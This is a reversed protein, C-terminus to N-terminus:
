LIVPSPTVGWATFLANIATDASFSGDDTASEWMYNSADWLYNTTAGAGEKIYIEITMEHTDKHSAGHIAATQVQTKITIKNYKEGAQPTTIPILNLNAGLDHQNLFTNFVDKWTLKPWQGAGSYQYTVTTGTTGLSKVSLEYVGSYVYIPVLGASKTASAFVLASISSSQISAAQTASTTTSQTINGSATGNVALVLNGASTGSNQLVLVNFRSLTMFGYDYEVDFQNEVDKSYVWIFREPVITSAGGGDAVTFSLGYNAETSTIAIHTADLKFAVLGAAIFGADVNLLNVGLLANTSLTIPTGAVGNVTYAVTDTAANTITIKYLRRAKCVSPERTDKWTDQDNKIQLLIDDEILIKDADALQGGSPTQISPLVGGYFRGKQYYDDNAVGPKQKRKKINIGYEYNCDACPAPANTKLLVSEQAGDRTRTVTLTTGTSSYILELGYDKILLINKTGGIDPDTWTYLGFKTVDLSTILIRKKPYNLNEM